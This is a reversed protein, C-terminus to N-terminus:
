HMIETSGRRDIRLEAREVDAETLNIGCGTLSASTVNAERYTGSFRLIFRYQYEPGGYLYVDRFSETPGVGSLTESKTLTCVQEYTGTEPNWQFCTFTGNVTGSTLAHDVQVNLDDNGTCELFSREGYDTCSDYSDIFVLGNTGKTIGGMSVTGATITSVQVVSTINCGVETRFHVNSGLGSFNATTTSGAAAGATAPSALISLALALITLLSLKRGM